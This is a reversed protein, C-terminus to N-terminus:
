DSWIGYISLLRLFPINYITALTRLVHIRPVRSGRELESLAALSVRFRHDRRSQAVSRSDAVTARLTKNAAMRHRRLQSGATGLSM